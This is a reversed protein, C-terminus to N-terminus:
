RDGDRRAEALRCRLADVHNGRNLLLGQGAVGGTRLEAVSEDVIHLQEVVATRLHAGPSRDTGDDALRGLGRDDLAKERCYKGLALNNKAPHGREWLDTGYSM